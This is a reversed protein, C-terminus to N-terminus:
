HVYNNFDNLKLSANLKLPGFTFKSREAPLDTLDPTPTPSNIVFACYGPASVPTSYDTIVPVGGGVDGPLLSFCCWLSPRYMSRCRGGQGCNGTQYQVFWAVVRQLVARPPKMSREATIARKILSSQSLQGAPQDKPQGKRDERWHCPCIIYILFVLRFCCDFFSILTFLALRSCTFNNASTYQERKNTKTTNKGGSRENHLSLFFM